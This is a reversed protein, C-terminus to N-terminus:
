AFIYKTARVAEKKIGRELSLFKELGNEVVFEDPDFSTGDKKLPLVVASLKTFEDSNGYTDVLSKLGRQGGGEKGNKEPDTDFCVCLRDCYRLIVGSQMETLTVGMPSVSNKLGYQSLLLRDIYGEVLYVKNKKFCQNRADDMGYLYAEKRFPSNWWGKEDISRAAVAVITGSDDRIPVIIKKTLRSKIGDQPIEWYGQPMSKSFLDAISSDSYGIKERKITEVTLGRKVTVYDFASKCTKLRNHSLDVLNKLCERIQKKQIVSSM